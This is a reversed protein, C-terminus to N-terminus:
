YRVETSFRVAAYGGCLALLHQLSSISIREISTPIATIERESPLLSHLRYSDIERMRDTPSKTWAEELVVPNHHVFEKKSERPPLKVGGLSSLMGGLIPRRPPDPPPPLSQESTNM